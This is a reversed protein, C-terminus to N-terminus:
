LCPAFTTENPQEYYTSDSNYIAWTSGKSKEIKKKNFKINYFRVGSDANYAITFQLKSGKLTGTIAGIPTGDIIAQGRVYGGDDVNFRLVPPFQTDKICYAWAEAQPEAQEQAIAVDAAGTAEEQAIAVGFSCLLTFVMMGILIFKKM